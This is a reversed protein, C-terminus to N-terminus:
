RVLRSVLKFEPTGAGGLLDFLVAETSSVVAGVSRVLELGVEFNDRTRSAVADALVVVELGRARLARTTQYVCIHTEMGTVVVTQPAQVSLAQDIAPDESAAFCLKPRPILDSFAGKVEPLTPGLGEPYQETLLAPFGLAKRAEGLRVVNAVLRQRLAEDMAPALREQVDIVLLLLRDSKPRELSSM